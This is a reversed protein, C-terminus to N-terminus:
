GARFSPPWCLEAVQQLAPTKNAALALQPSPKTRMLTRILAKSRPMKIDLCM